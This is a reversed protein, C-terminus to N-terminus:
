SSLPVTIVDTMLDERAAVFHGTVTVTRNEGGTIQYVNALRGFIKLQVPVTGDEPILSLLRELAERTVPLTMSFDYLM